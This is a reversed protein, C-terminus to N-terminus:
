RTALPRAKPDVLTVGSGRAEIADAQVFNTANVALRMADFSASPDVSVDGDGSVSGLVIRVLGDDKMIVTDQYLAPRPAGLVLVVDRGRAMYISGFDTRVKEPRPGIRRPVLVSLSNNIKIEIPATESPMMRIDPRAACAGLFSLACLTLPLALHKFTTEKEFRVGTGVAIVTGFWFAAWPRGRGPIELHSSNQGSGPAFNGFYFDSVSRAKDRQRRGERPQNSDELAKRIKGLLTDPTFPEQSILTGHRVFQGASM